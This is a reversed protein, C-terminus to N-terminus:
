AAKTVASLREVRTGADPEEESGPCGVPSHIDCLMLLGSPEQVLLSVECGGSEAERGLRKAAVVAEERVHFTGM